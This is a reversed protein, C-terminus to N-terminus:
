FQLIKKAEKLDEIKRALNARHEKASTSEGAISELQEANLGIVWEQTFVRLPTNPGFLLHSQVVQIWVNDVFRKRAVDYYSSLGDHLQEAVDQINSKDRTSSRIQGVTVAVNDGIDQELESLTSLIHDAARDAHAEQRAKNFHKNLTYPNLEREVSLLYELFDTATKYRQLVEEQVCSWLTERLTSDPCVIGLTDTIFRQVVMIARSAFTRSMIPWKSSQERWASAQVADSYHGLEMGRSGVYLNKIWEMIGDEPYGVDYELCIIDGLEPFKEPDLDQTASKLLKITKAAASSNRLCSGSSELGEDKVDDGIGDYDDFDDSEPDGYEFNRLAAKVEFEQKFNEALFAMLTALRLHVSGEFAPYLHYRAELSAKVLEQFKDAIHSLFIRQETDNGRSPGLEDREKEALSLMEGVDKRLKPFERRAMDGLLEGLRTKLARVGVRRKDLRRWPDENFMQERSEYEPDDQDAGRSRVVYYGLTLQKKKNEVISCITEKGSAEPVLDPKTLIGLTRDGKKDYEAALTLIEQNAIDINCPLVALIITRSDKIYETVMNRVMAIDQKTTVGETETRFIGPVDIVTLYDATPGCIEIKLVDESFVTGGKASSSMRIGMRANVEQLIAPFKARLDDGSLASGYYAEVHNKHEDTSHPGPIITINVHTSSDRRQTIQTAYRTCLEVDRPFPIGTLSELLSSKGSSQDGVVVLQPLPVHKGINRERLKDIKALLAPSALLNDQTTDTPAM